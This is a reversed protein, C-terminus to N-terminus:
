RTYRGIAEWWVDAMRDYGRDNPHLGDDLLSTRYAPDSTFAGFMDVAVVHAGRAARRAIEDRVGRNYAIAAQNFIDDDSPTIEAVVLLARPALSVIRDLLSGLRGPAGAVDCGGGIDNTGIMLLIVHPEGAAIAGPVRPSIGNRAPCPDITYGSYGEHGRPFVGADPAEGADRTGIAAPGNSARGVFTIHRKDAIARRLLPVRYGGGVSSGVGYTISDGLPLLRCPSGDRPCPDFTATPALSLARTGNEVRAAERRAGCEGCGAVLALAAAGM